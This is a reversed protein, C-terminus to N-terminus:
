TQQHVLPATLGNHILQLAPELLADSRNNAAVTIELGRDVILLKCAVAPNQILEEFMAVAQQVFFIVNEHSRDPIRAHGRRIIREVLLSEPQRLYVIVDPLTILKVFTSLNAMDTQVSQHVFLNHAVQLVGEDVIVVQEDNHFYRIIEQAGIKKLVNRFIYLKESRPVPLQAVLHAAFRYFRHNKRWTILCALLAVMNVLLSRPLYGTARHLRLKELIFDDGLSIDIAQDSNAQLINRILTSKGASTCGILEIQMM